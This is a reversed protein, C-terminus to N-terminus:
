EVREEVGARAVPAAAAAGPAAPRPVAARRRVPAAVVGARLLLVPRPQPRPTEWRALQHSLSETQQM